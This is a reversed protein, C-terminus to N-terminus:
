GTMQEISTFTPKFSTTTLQEISAFTPKFSTPPKSFQKPIFSGGVGPKENLQKNLWTILQANSELNNSAEELKQRTNTLQYNLDKADLDKKDNERKLEHM